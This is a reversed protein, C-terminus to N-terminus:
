YSKSSQIKESYSGMKNLKNVFILYYPNARESFYEVIKHYMGILQQGVQMKERDKSRDATQGLMEEAERIEELKRSIKEYSPEGNWGSGLQLGIDVKQFRTINKM